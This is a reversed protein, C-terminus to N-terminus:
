TPLAGVIYDLTSWSSRANSQQLTADCTIQVESINLFSPNIRCFKPMLGRRISLEVWVTPISNRRLTPWISSQDADQIHTTMSRWHLRWQYEIYILPNCGSYYRIFLAHRSFYAVACCFWHYLPTVHHLRSRPSGLDMSGRIPLDMSGAPLAIYLPRKGRSSLLEM